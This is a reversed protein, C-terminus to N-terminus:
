RLSTCYYRHRKQTIPASITQAMAQCRQPNGRQAAKLGRKAAAVVCLFGGRLGPCKGGGGGAGGGGGDM